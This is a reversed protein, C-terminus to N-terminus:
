SFIFGVIVGVILGLGVPLVGVLFVCFQIVLPGYTVAASKLAGLSLGLFGFYSAVILIIIAIIAIKLVKRALYGVIVGIIFTVVMFVLPSVGAISGSTIFGFVENIASMKAAGVLIL